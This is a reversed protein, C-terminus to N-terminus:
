RCDDDRKMEPISFYHISADKAKCGDEQSTKSVDSALFLENGNIWTVGEINCYEVTCSGNNRRRKPYNFIFSLEESVIQFFPSENIEEIKSIWLQSSEQSSIAVYTSSQYEYMALDSYDLFKLSTPLRIVGM